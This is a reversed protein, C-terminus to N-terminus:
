SKTNWYWKQEDWIPRFLLMTREFAPGDTTRLVSKTLNRETIRDFCLIENNHFGLKTEYLWNIKCHLIFM